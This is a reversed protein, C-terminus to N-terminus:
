SSTLQHKFWILQVCIGYEKSTEFKKKILDIVEVKFLQNGGWYFDDVHCCIMGHLEGNVKRSFSAEDYKCITCGIAILEEKAKLYWKRPADTVGYVTKNLKWLM